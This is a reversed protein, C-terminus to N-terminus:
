SDLVLLIEHPSVAQELRQLEAMMADDIHLRGATDIIVVDNSNAQAHELGQRAISIPDQRDGLSFVPTQVGRGVVELQRIAAPRYIDCAVLLPRRGQKRLLAALKGCHTTKGSGQLGVLMLITPPRPAFNIRAEEGGLIATLEENVIKVVMQAPTLSELVDQGVAREKVRGIFDKVVRFNVDAELLALRVERLAEAVDAETLSGKGRLRKFVNQLKDSLSEFM